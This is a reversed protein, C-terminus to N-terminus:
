KIKIKSAFGKRTGQDSEANFEVATEEGTEQPATKLQKLEELERQLDKNQLALCMEFSKGEAFWVGGKEGFADLFQQGNRSTEAPLDAQGEPLEPQHSLEQIAETAAQEQAEETANSSDSLQESEMAKAGIELDNRELFDGVFRRVRGADIGLCAVRPPSDTLGLAFSAVANAEQAIEQERHFLGDPNAAPEDVADAARLELLRSHPLNDINDPDPSLFAGSDLHEETFGESAEKDHMFVISLGYAAPDDEALEMLYQALNGDPTSHASSSFHQDAIVKNGEVRANMIRGLHRGLGDGSLGPHTFRSKIGKNPQNIAEAVQANFISDVWFGHGLAEGETIVSVGRIIGAKWHGGKRDISPAYDALSKQGRFYAPPEILVNSKDKM